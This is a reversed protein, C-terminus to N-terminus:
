SHDVSIPAIARFAFYLYGLYIIVVCIDLLLPLDLGFLSTVARVILSPTLALAAVRVLSTYPQVVKDKRILRASLYFVLGWFLAQLVSLGYFIFFSSVFLIVSLAFSGIAVARALDQPEIDFNASALVTKLPLTVKPVKVIEKDEFGYLRIDQDRVVIPAAYDIEKDGSITDIVLLPRKRFMEYSIVLPLESKLLIRGNKCTVGPVKHSLDLSAAALHGFVIWWKLVWCIACIQCLAVMYWMALGKWERMVTVYADARYFSKFAMLFIDLM